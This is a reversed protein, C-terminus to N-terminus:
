RSDNAALRQELEGIEAITFPEHDTALLWLRYRHNQQETMVAIYAALMVPNLEKPPHGGPQFLRRYVMPDATKQILEQLWQSHFTQTRQVARLRDLIAFTCILLTGLLLIFYSLM